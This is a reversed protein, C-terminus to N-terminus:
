QVKVTGKMVTPHISCHYKFTGRARFVRSFSAGPAVIGSDWVGTDSTSTHNTTSTNRWVVKTGRQISITAPQFAFNVMKVTKAATPATRDASMAQSIGPPGFVPLVAVILVVLSRKM